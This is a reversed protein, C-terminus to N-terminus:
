AVHFPETQVKQFRQLSPLSGVGLLGVTPRGPPSQGGVVPQQRPVAFGGVEGGGGQGHRDVPATDTQHEVTAETPPQLRSTVQFRGVVRHASRGSPLHELLCAQITPYIRDRNPKGAVRRRTPGSRPVQVELEDSWTLLM